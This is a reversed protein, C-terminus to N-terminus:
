VDDERQVIFCGTKSCTVGWSPREPHKILKSSENDFSEDGVIHFNMAPNAEILKNLFTRKDKTKSEINFSEYGNREIRTVPVGKFNLPDSNFSRTTTNIKPNKAINFM